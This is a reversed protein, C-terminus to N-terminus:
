MERNDLGLSKKYANYLNWLETYLIKLTLTFILNEIRMIQMALILYGVSKM